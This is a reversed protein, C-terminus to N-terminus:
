LRSLRLVDVPDGPEAAGAGAPRRILGDAEAFVTVLSSDQDSFPTATVAGDASAGLRARMWHERPGVPPLSAALRATAMPLATEAGQWAMLLPRLFLQACVLASAPNGPLGLVSRGDELRGFWTPKGPRLRVTDVALTLGLRRLAPKVLDHEGVSAGGVTVILDGGCGQVAAAIADENDKLPDLAHALGGWGAVLASLAPGATDFIQGAAIEGGPRVIEEGTTLLAVRPRPALKVAACGASAVLALRWPDLRVGAEILTRGAKFDGGRPRVFAPNPAHAEFSVRQGDRRAREQVLVLCGEPVLAGTFIRVAEGAMVDGAFPRGAASEGIVRFGAALDSGGRVAYGDMASADFPPQDRGAIVAEALTRGLADALTATEVGKPGIGALMRGRAAEVSLAGLTPEPM